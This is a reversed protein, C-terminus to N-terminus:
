KNEEPYRGRPLKEEGGMRKAWMAEFVARLADMAESVPVKAFLDRIPLGFIIVGALAVGEWSHTAPWHWVYAVGFLTLLVRFQSLRKSEDGKDVWTSLFWLAANTLERSWHRRSKM